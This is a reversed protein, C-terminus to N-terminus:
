TPPDRLRKRWVRETFRKRNRDPTAIPAGACDSLPAGSARSTKRPAISSNLMRREHRISSAQDAGIRSCRSRERHDPKGSCSALSLVTNRATTIGDGQHERHTLVSGQKAVKPTNRMLRGGRVALMVAWRRSHGVVVVAAFPGHACRNREGPLIESASRSRITLVPHDWRAGSKRKGWAIDAEREILRPLRREPCARANDGESDSGGRRLSDVRGRRRWESQPCSRTQACSELVCIRHAGPDCSTRDDHSGDM